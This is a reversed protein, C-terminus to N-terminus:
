LAVCDSADVFHETVHGTPTITIHHMFKAGWLTGGGGPGTRVLHTLDFFTFQGSAPNVRDKFIFLGMGPAQYTAGTSRGTGTIGQANTNAIIYLFGDEKLVTRDTVHLTGSVDVIEGGAATCDFTAEIEIKFNERSIEVSRLAPDSPAALDPSSDCAALWSLFVLSSLQIGRAPM